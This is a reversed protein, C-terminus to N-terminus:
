FVNKAFYVRTRACFGDLFEDRTGNYRTGRSMIKGLNSVLCNKAVCPQMLWQIM